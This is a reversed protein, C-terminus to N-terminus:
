TLFRVKSPPASAVLALWLEWVRSKSQSEPINRCQKMLQMYLEDKLIPVDMATKIIKSAAETPPQQEVPDDSAGMYKLVNNFMEVALQDKDGEM